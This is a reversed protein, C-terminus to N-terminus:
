FITYKQYKKDDRARVFVKLFCHPGSNCILLIFFRM